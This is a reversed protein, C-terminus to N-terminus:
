ESTTGAFYARSGPKGDARKAERSPMRCNGYGAAESYPEMYGTM